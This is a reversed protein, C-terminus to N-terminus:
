YIAPLEKDNLIRSKGTKKAQKKDNNGDESKRNSSPQLPKEFQVVPTEIPAMAVTARVGYRAMCARQAADRALQRSVALDLEGILGYGGTRPVMLTAQDSEAICQVKLREFEVPDIPKGDFRGFTVTQHMGPACGSLIFLLPLVSRKWMIMGESVNASRVM